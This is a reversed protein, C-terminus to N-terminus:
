GVKSVTKWHPQLRPILAPLELNTYGWIAISSPYYTKQFSQQPMPLFAMCINPYVSTSLALHLNYAGSTM